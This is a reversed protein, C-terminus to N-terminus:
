YGRSDLSYMFRTLDEAYLYDVERVLEGARTLIRVTYTDSPELVVRVWMVRVRDQGAKHLRALFQLGPAEAAPTATLQSAGVVGLGFIGLQQRITNAVKVRDSTQTATM